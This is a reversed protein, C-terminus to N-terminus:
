KAGTGFRVRVARAAPRQYCRMLWAATPPHRQMDLWSTRSPSLVCAVNFDAVTFRDAALWGRTALTADLQTLGRHAEALAFDATAGSYVPKGGDRRVWPELHQQAWLSWRWVDAEFRADSSYLAEAGPPDFTKALYLNIALSEGLCFGDHDIAPVTGAPNIRLFEPTKLWPDDWAVPVHDYDLGLEEAMWLTRMTRSRPSGYITLAM